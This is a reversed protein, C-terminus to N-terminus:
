CILEFVRERGIQPGPSLPETWVDDGARSQLEKMDGIGREFRGASNELNTQAVDPENEGSVIERILRGEIASANKLETKEISAANFISYASM